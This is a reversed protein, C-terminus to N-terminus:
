VTEKVLRKYFAELYGLRNLMLAYQKANEFKQFDEDAMYLQNGKPQQVRYAHAVVADFMRLHTVANIM